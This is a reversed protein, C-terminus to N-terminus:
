LNLCAPTAVPVRWLAHAPACYIHCPVLAGVYIHYAGENIEDYHM